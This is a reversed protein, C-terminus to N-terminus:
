AFSKESVSQCVGAGPREGRSVSRLFKDRQRLVDMHGNPGGYHGSRGCFADGGSGALIDGIHDKGCPHYGARAKLSAARIGGIESGGYGSQVTRNQGHRETLLRLCSNWMWDLISLDHQRLSVASLRPSDGPM